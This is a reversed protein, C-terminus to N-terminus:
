FIWKCDKVFAALEPCVSQYSFVFDILESRRKPNQKRCTLVILWGM